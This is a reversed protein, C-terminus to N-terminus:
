ARLVCAGGVAKIRHEAKRSFFKAKVVVPVNPLQGRGCVKFFGFKTVDICVAQDKKTKAEELVSAPLLSWLKDLNMVPRYHLNKRLHFTRM